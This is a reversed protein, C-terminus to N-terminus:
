ASSKPRLWAPTPAPNGSLHREAAVKGDIGVEIPHEIGAVVVVNCCDASSSVAGRHPGSQPAAELYRDSGQGADVGDHHIKALVLENKRDALGQVTEAHVHNDSNGDPLHIHRSALLSGVRGVFRALGDSSALPGQAVPLDLPVLFLGDGRRHTLRELGLRNWSGVITSKRM